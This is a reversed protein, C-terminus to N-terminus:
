RLSCPTGPLRIRMRSFPCFPQGYLSRTRVPGYCARSAWPDGADWTSVTHKLRTRRAVLQGFRCMIDEVGSAIRGRIRSTAGLSLERIDGPCLRKAMEKRLCVISQMVAEMSNALCYGRRLNLDIEADLDDKEDKAEWFGFPVRLTHLLAGDVYRREKTKTELEYEPIFTLDLRRCWGKLLVKFAERVVSERHTGGVRRLNAHETLYKNILVQSVATARKRRGDHRANEGIDGRVGITVSSL